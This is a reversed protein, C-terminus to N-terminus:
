NTPWIYDSLEALVRMRFDTALERASVITPNFQERLLGIMAGGILGLMFSGAIILMRPPGSKATPPVARTIIRSNTDNLDKEEGVEKARNLFATYVARDSEAESELERLRVMQQNTKTVDGKLTDVSREMEEENARARNYDSLATEAIRSLEEDIRRRSQAVQAAAAIVQPHRPGLIATKNAEAQKAEAYQSRLATITQSEIAEAIADPEASSRQLRRVDEYRARREATVARAQMPQKNLTSLQQETVLEGSAGIIKNQEKFDEVRRASRVARERLEALRSQLTGSTRKSAETRAELERELYVTAIANALRAAKAPDKSSVSIDIVFSKDPRRTGMRNQPIRTAKLVRDEQGSSGLLSSLLGPPAAGFEPDDQLKESEVVSMLVSGSSVVQLQSEADALLADSARDVRPTLDGQMVQLGHVDLLIQATATYRTPLAFAVITGILTCILASWFVWKAQRKLIVFIDRLDIVAAPAPKQEDVQRAPSPRTLAM